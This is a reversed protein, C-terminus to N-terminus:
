MALLSADFHPVHKKSISEDVRWEFYSCSTSILTSRYCDVKDDHICPSDLVFCAWFCRWVFTWKGKSKTVQNQLAKSEHDMDNESDLCVRCAERSENCHIAGCWLMCERIVWRHVANSCLILIFISLGHSVACDEALYCCLIGVWSGLRTFPQLVWLDVPM